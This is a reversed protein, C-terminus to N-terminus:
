SKLVTWGSVVLINLSTGTKMERWSWNIDANKAMGAIM